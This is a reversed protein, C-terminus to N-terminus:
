YAGRSRHKLVAQYCATAHNFKGQRLSENLYVKPFGLEEAFYAAFRKAKLKSQPDIDQESLRQPGDQELWLHTKAEAINIRRDSEKQLLRRLLDKLSPSTEPESPFTLDAFAIQSYLEDIREATFPPSGYVMQYLLVGLSWVDAQFGTHGKELDLSEPAEFAPTGCSDKLLEGRTLQKSVGLDAILARGSETLVVNEPKLDRHVINLSHLAELGVLLDAFITRAEQESLTGKKKLLAGLDGKTAYESVLFFYDKSEFVELLGVVHPCAASKMLLHMENEAKALGCEELALQKKSITKLAVKLGTLVQLGLHVKGFAGKGICKLLEYYSISTAFDEKKRKSFHDKINSVLGKAFPNLRLLNQLTSTAESREPDDDKPSEQLFLCDANAPYELNGPPSLNGILPGYLTQKRSPVELLRECIEVSKNVDTSDLGFVMTSENDAPNLHASNNQNVESCRERPRKDFAPPSKFLNKKKLSDLIALTSPRDPGSVKGNQNHEDPPKLYTFSMVPKTTKFNPSSTPQQIGKPTPQRQVGPPEIPSPIPSPAKQLSDLTHQSGNEVNEVASQSHQIHDLEPMGEDSEQKKSNSKHRALRKKITFKSVRASSIDGRDNIKKDGSLTQGLVGALSPWEGRAGLQGSNHLKPHSPSETGIMSQAHHHSPQQTKPKSPDVLYPGSGIKSSVLGSFGAKKRSQLMSIQGTSPGSKALSDLASKQYSDEDDQSEVTPQREIGSWGRPDFHVTHNLRDEIVFSLDSQKDIRPSLYKDNADIRFSNTSQDVGPRQQDKLNLYLGTNKLLNKQGVRELTLGLKSKAQHPKVTKIKKASSQKHLSKNEIEANPACLTPKKSAQLFGGPSQVKMSGLDLSEKYRHLRKGAPSTMEVLNGKGKGAVKLTRSNSPEENLPLLPKPIRKDSITQNPLVKICTTKPGTELSEISGAKEGGQTRKFAQSSQEPVTLFVPKKAGQDTLVKSQMTPHGTLCDKQDTQM